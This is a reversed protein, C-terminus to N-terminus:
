ICNWYLFYLRHYSESNFMGKQMPSLNQIFSLNSNQEYMKTLLINLEESNVYECINLCEKLYKSPFCFFRDCDLTEVGFYDYWNEYENITWVYKSKETLNMIGICLALDADYPIMLYVHNEM